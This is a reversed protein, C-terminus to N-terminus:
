EASVRGGPAVTGEGLLSAVDHPPGAFGSLLGQAYGM